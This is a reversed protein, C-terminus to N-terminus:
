HNRLCNWFMNACSQVTKYYNQLGKIYHTLNAFSNEDNQYGILLYNPTIAEFDHINDKIPTLPHKNLISEIECLYTQLTKDTFTRDTSIARSARKVSKILSEWSGGMWASLPPNFKWTINKSNLNHTTRKNDLNKVLARLEYEGGILNSGNNSTIIKIHGRRAIFRSPDLIFSETTLNDAVELHLARMTLCVFIVRYRKNLAPNKRTNKTAKVKIPGFYDIGTSSFPKANCTKRKTPKEYM